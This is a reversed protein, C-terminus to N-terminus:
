LGQIWDYAKRSQRSLLRTAEGSNTFVENESDWLLKQKVRYAISGLHSPITSRHGIEVDANPKQRTKVCELWNHIHRFKGDNGEPRYLIRRDMRYSGGGAPEPFIEFGDPDALLAGNTGYFAIGHPRDFEGHPYFYKIGPTRGGMGYWNLRIAEYSMTFNPYEFLVHHVDPIDESKLLYRDGYAVVSRPADANMARQVTDFLHVGMDSIPGEAYDFFAHWNKWRAQHFPVAPAPGVLFDWDLGEPVPSAPEPRHPYENSYDWVRVYRVEGLEGSQVVRVAEAIHSASRGQTGMQVIRNYKRAAQVIKRGEVVNHALPKEVYVDKGAQCALIAPAAHWHEPTAIMVAAVQSNELLRRFDKYAAPSKLQAKVRELAPAYVDCVAVIAAGADAALAGIGEGEGGCGILGVGIRDNSGLIRAYSLSTSAALGTRLLDRRNM